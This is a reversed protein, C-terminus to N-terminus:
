PGALGEITMFDAMAQCPHSADSLANIVPITASTGARRRHCAFLHSAALVDSAARFGSGECFRRRERPGWGWTRANWSFPTVGPSAIAFAPRSTRLLAERLAALNRGSLRAVAESTRKIEISQDILGCVEDASIELGFASTGDGLDTELSQVAAVRRGPHCGEDIQEDTITLAPLLRVVHGHTANILALWRMCGAVIDTPM